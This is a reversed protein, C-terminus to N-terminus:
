RWCSRRGVHRVPHRPAQRAPGDPLVARVARGARRRHDGARHRPRGVLVGLTAVIPQVRAVAVVSATSSASWCAPSSAALIAVAIPAGLGGQGPAIVFKALVASAIAMTAGVSLDVGGTGIVLAMGLSVIIVPPLQAFLLQITDVTLFNTTAVVNYLSWCSAARPLRRARAALRAWGDTVGSGPRCCPSATRIATGVARERPRSPRRDDPWSRARGDATQEAAADAIMDMIADETIDDGFLPGLQAGDRLVVVTDSGEVVEELESSILM